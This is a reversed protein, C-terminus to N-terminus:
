VTLICKVDVWREDLRRWIGWCQNNADIPWRLKTRPYCKAHMFLMHFLLWPEPQVRSFDNECEAAARPRSHSSAQWARTDSIICEISRNSTTYVNVCIHWIFVFWIFSCWWCPAVFGFRFFFYILELIFEHSNFLLVLSKYIWKFTHIYIKLVGCFHPSAPFLM